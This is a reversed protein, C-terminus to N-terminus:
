LQSKTLTGTLKNFKDNNTVNLNQYLNFPTGNYNDLDIFSSSM